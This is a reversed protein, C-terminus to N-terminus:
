FSIVSTLKLADYNKSRIAIEFLRGYSKEDIEEISRMRCTAASRSDNLYFENKQAQNSINVTFSSALNNSITLWLINQYCSAALRILFQAICRIVKHSRNVNQSLIREAFFMAYNSKGSKLLSSESEISTSSARRWKLLQRKSIGFTWSSKKVLYNYLLCWRRHTANISSMLMFMMSPSSSKQSHKCTVTNQSM